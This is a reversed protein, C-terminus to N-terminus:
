VLLPWVLPAGPLVEVLLLVVVQGLSLVEPLAWLLVAVQGRPLAEALHLNELMAPLRGQAEGGLELAEVQIAEEAVL